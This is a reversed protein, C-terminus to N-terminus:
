YVRFAKLHRLLEMPLVLSESKKPMQPGILFRTLTKRIRGDTQENVGMQRRMIEASTVPWAGLM